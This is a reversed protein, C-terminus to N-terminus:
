ISRPAGHRPLAESWVRRWEVHQRHAETIKRAATRETAYSYFVEEGTEQLAMIRHTYHVEDPEFDSWARIPARQAIETEVINGQADFSACYCPSSAQAAARYARLSHQKM